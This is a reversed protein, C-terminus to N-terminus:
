AIGKAEYIESANFANTKVYIILRNVQELNARAIRLDWEIAENHDLSIELMKVAHDMNMQLGELMTITCIESIVKM